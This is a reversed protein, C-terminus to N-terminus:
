ELGEAKRAAALTADSAWPRYAPYPPGQLAMLRTRAANLRVMFADRASGQLNGLREERGLEAVAARAAAIQERTGRKAKAHPDFTWVTADYRVQQEATLPTKPQRARQQDRLAGCESSLRAVEAAAAQKAEVIARVDGAQRSTGTEIKIQRAIIDALKRQADHLADSKRAHLEDLSPVSIADSALSKLKRHATKAAASATSISM